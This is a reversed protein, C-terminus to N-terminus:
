VDTQVEMGDKCLVTCTRLNAHGNIMARCEFCIGMGCLPGRPEGRVSRRFNEAGTTAIAAAVSIGAPVSIQQGNIKLSITEPM